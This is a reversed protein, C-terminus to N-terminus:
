GERLLQGVVVGGDDLETAVKRVGMVVEADQQRLRATRDLRLRLIACGQRDMLLEGVVVGGDGADAAAQRGAVV